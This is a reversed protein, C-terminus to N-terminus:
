AATTAKFVLKLGKGHSFYYDGSPSIVVARGKAADAFYRWGHAPEGVRAVIAVAQMGSDTRRDVSPEKRRDEAHSAISAMTAAVSLVVSISISRM